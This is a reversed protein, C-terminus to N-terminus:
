EVEDNFLSILESGGDPHVCNIKCKKYQGYLEIDVVIM